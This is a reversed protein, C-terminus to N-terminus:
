FTQCYKAKGKSRKDVEEALRNFANERGEGYILPMHIDFIGFLSYAKDEERKTKRKAAWSMREDFTFQALPNGQLAASPIWTIEHILQELSKKDGLREGEM